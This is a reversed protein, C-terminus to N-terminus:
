NRKKEQPGTESSSTSMVKHPLSGSCGEEGGRVWLNVPDLAGGGRGGRRWAGGGASAPEQGQCNVKSNVIVIATAIATVIVRATVIVARKWCLEKAPQLANKKTHTVHELDEGESLGCGRRM